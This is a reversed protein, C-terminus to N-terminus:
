SPVAAHSLPPMAASSAGSASSIAGAPATSSAPARRRLALALGSFMAWLVGPDPSPASVASSMLMLLATWSAAAGVAEPGAAGARWTSLRLPKFARFLHSAFALTGIVGMSGLIATLLSSSRFSGAGVGLGASVMFADFGQKAWFLRQMGSGSDGKEVTMVRVIKYFGDLAGPVLATVALVGVIGALLCGALTLKRVFPVSGPLFVMRLGLVTSYGALTVYATSSTSILLAFGLMLAAPGAWRAHIGRLWLETTFILWAGGFAAFGSTEPWIGNMRQLGGISQDLQAYRGNRFFDIMAELPTGPAVTSLLGLLTHIVAVVIGVKALKLASGPQSAAVATAVGSILTGMMYGSTTINQNTFHLPATEYLERIAGPRLPTVKIQGAFMHPLIWAGISGYLAFVILFINDVMGRLLLSWHGPSPLIVRLALFLLALHAPPITSGGLAPLAIAASGGMLTTLMVFALMASASGSVLLITGIAIVLVGFITPIM